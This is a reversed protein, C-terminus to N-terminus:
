DTQHSFFGFLEGTECEVEHCWDRQPIVAYPQESTRTGAPTRWADADGDEKRQDHARYRSFAIQNDRQERPQWKMKAHTNM